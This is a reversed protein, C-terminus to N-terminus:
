KDELAEKVLVDKVRGVFRWEVMQGVVHVGPDVDGPENHSVM